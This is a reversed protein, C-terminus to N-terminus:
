WFAPPKGRRAPPSGRDFRSVSTRRHGLLRDLGVQLLGAPQRRDVRRALGDHPVLLLEADVRLGDLDPLRPQAFPDLRLRYREVDLQAM